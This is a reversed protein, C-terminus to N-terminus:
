TMKEMGDGSEDSKDVPEKAVMERFLRGVFVVVAAAASALVWGSCLVVTLWYVSPERDNCDESTAYVLMAIGLIHWMADIYLFYLLFRWVGLTCLSRSCPELDVVDKVVRGSKTNIDDEEVPPDLKWKHRESLRGFRYRANFPDTKNATHHDFIGYNKKVCYEFYQYEINSGYRMAVCLQFFAALCGSAFAVTLWDIMLDGLSCADSDANDHDLGISIRRLVVATAALTLLHVVFVGNGSAANDIQPSNSVKFFIQLTLLSAFM